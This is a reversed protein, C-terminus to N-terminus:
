FLPLHPRLTYRLAKVNHDLGTHCEQENEKLAERKKEGLIREKEYRYVCYM